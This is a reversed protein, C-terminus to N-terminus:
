RGSLLVSRTRYWVPLVYPAIIIRAGSVPIEPVTQGESVPGICNVPMKVDDLWGELQSNLQSKSATYWSGAHSPDRVVVNSSM